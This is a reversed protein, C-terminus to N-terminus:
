NPTPERNLSEVVVVKFPAKTRVLELGLQRLETTISPAPPASLDSPGPLDESYDLTFNYRGALATEDVVPMGDPKPLYRVLASMPELHAEVSVVKFSGSVSQNFVFRPTEVTSVTHGDSGPEGLAGAKEEAEKIRL